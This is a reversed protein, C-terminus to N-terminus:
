LSLCGHLVGLSLAKWDPLCAYDRYEFQYAALYLFPESGVGSSASNRQSSKVSSQSVFGKKCIMASTAVVIEYQQLWIYLFLIIFMIRFFVSITSVSVTTLILDPKQQTPLCVYVCVSLCVSRCVSLCVCLCVCLCPPLCVSPSICSQAATQVVLDGRSVIVQSTTAISRTTRM